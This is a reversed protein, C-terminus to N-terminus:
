LIEPIGQRHLRGQSTHLANESKKKTQSGASKELHQSRIKSGPALTKELRGQCCQTSDNQCGWEFLKNMTQSLPFATIKFSKKKLTPRKNPGALFFNIKRALSTQECKLVDVCLIHLTVYFKGVVFTFIFTNHVKAKPQVWPGRPAHIVYLSNKCQVPEDSNSPDLYHRIHNFHELISRNHFSSKFYCHDIYM